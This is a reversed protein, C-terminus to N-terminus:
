TWIENQPGSFFLLAVVGAFFPTLVVRLGYYLATASVIALLLRNAYWRAANGGVLFAEFIRLTYYGPRFRGDHEMAWQQILPFLESIRIQNDKGLFTVIEHDDIMGFDAHVMPQLMFIICGLIFFLPWERLWNRTLTRIGGM